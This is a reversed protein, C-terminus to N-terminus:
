RNLKELRYRMEEAVQRDPHDAFARLCEIAEPTGIDFWAHSFWKAVVGTESCNRRAFGRLNQEFARRLVATSSPDALLQLERVIAQHRYHGSWFLMEHLAELSDASGLAIATEVMLSAQDRDGQACAREFRDLLFRSRQSPEVPHTEWFAYLRLRYAEMPCPREDGDRIIITDAM